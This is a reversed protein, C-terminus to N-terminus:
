FDYGKLMLNWYMFPLGYRKLIWLPYSAKGTNLLKSLIPDSMRVGDYGFEALLMKNHAVVLPCSSYGNYKKCDAEKGDMLQIINKVVVPAQKRIAAGTRATPLDTVDGVGFVNPYKTSQMSHKDVAMWGKNPGDQNALKTKQFWTPASQPPALHLMDYKITYHVGKKGMQFSANKEQVEHQVGEEWVYGICGAANREDNVVYNDSGNPLELREYIAEKNEGDIEILKYGYRQKINYKLLYKELETKFPEVGFIMTGPTAFIINTNDEMGHKAVYDGMLYMIKQPAGPCKIPTAPQTFLANGGKFQQMLEWTYKPDVYNSCVGNKGFAEKLGKIGDLNIQIGTANVLYDYTIKDGNELIVENNDPQIDAVREKIWSVGSPILKEEQRITAEYKMLGAAVLTNAPQYSHTGTPDIIAIDLGKKAKKLQAATMIGGTGGGVIVVQHHKNM